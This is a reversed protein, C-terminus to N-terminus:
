NGESILCTTERIVDFNFSIETSSFTVASHELFEVLESIGDRAISILPVESM